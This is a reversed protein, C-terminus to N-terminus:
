CYVLGFKSMPPALFKFWEVTTRKLPLNQDLSLADYICITMYSISLLLLMITTNQTLGLFPTKTEGFEYEIEHLKDTVPYVAYTFILGSLQSERISYIHVQTLCLVVTKLQGHKHLYSWMACLGVKQEETRMELQHCMLVHTWMVESLGRM